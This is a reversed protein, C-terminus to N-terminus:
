VFTEPSAGGKFFEERSTRFECEFHIGDTSDWSMGGLADIWIRKKSLRYLKVDKKVVGTTRNWVRGWTDEFVTRTVKRQFWPHEYSSESIVIAITKPLEDSIAGTIEYSPVGRMFKRAITRAEDEHKILGARVARRVALTAKRKNTM